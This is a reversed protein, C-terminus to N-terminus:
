HGERKVLEQERKANQVTRTEKRDEFKEWEKEKRDREAM